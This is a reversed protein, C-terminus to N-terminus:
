YNSDDKIKSETSFKRVKVLSYHKKNIMNYKLYTYVIM